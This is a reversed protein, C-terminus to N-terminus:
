LATYHLACLIYEHLALMMSLFWVLMSEAGRYRWPLKGHRKHEIPPNHCYRKGQQSRSWDDQELNIMTVVMMVVRLM